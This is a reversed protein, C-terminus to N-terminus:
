IGAAVGGVADMALSEAEGDVFIESDSAAEPVALVILAPTILIDAVFAAGIGIATVYGFVVSNHMTATYGMVVFGSALVLSTFLLASGTTRMTREVALRSDGCSQIEGQYRHLFHITDDVALGIIISGIVISSADISWGLMGMVSLTVFVPMLNPIMSILGLRVNGILLMMLPTIIALAVMYSRAMSTIMASFTRSSLSNRGTISVDVEPGLAERFVGAVEALFPEYAIADVSPMRLTVRGYRFQSDTVRELDDSGSNEFLLLEQAVLAPDRPIAYFASDNRNLAQHTEQVIDILSSAKGVFLDGRDLGEVEAIARKIGLLVDPNQMGNERRTDIVVETTSAGRLHEDILESAIRSKHDPSLWKLPDHSFRVQFIGVGIALTAALSFGLVAVPRTAALGGISVLIREALNGGPLTGGFPRAGLPFIGILAPLLTMSFVFAFFVGFPAVKGLSMVTALDATLFSALGAATTLGTMFIALGADNFAAEVADPRDM